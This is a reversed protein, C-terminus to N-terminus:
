HFSDVIVLVDYRRASDRPLWGIQDKSRLLRLAMLRFCIRWICIPLDSSWNGPHSVRPSKHRQRVGRISFMGDPKLSYERTEGDLAAAQNRGM